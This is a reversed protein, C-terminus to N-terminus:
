KWECAIGDNDRDQSRCYHPTDQKIDGEGAQHAATCNPYYCSTASAAPVTAAAAMAAAAAAVILARSM